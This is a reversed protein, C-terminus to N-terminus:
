VGGSYEIGAAPSQQWKFNALSPSTSALIPRSFWTSASTRTGLVLMHIHGVLTPHGEGEKVLQKPTKQLELKVKFTSKRNPTLKKLATLMAKRQPHPSSTLSLTYSAPNHFAKTSLLQCSSSTPMYAPLPDHYQQQVKICKASWSKCWKLFLSFWTIKTEFKIVTVLPHSSCSLQCSRVGKPSLAQSSCITEHNRPYFYLYWHCFKCKLGKIKDFCGQNPRSVKIFAM